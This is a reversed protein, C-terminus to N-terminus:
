PLVGHDVREGHIEGARGYGVASPCWWSPTLYLGAVSMPSTFVGGNTRCARVQVIVDAERIQIQKSVFDVGITATTPLNPHPSTSV